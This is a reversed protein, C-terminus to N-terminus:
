YKEQFSKWSEKTNAILEKAEQVQALLFNREEVALLRYGKVHETKKLIMRSTADIQPVIKALGTAYEKIPLNVLSTTHQELHLIQEQLRTCHQALNQWIALPVEGRKTELSVYLAQLNTYLEDFIPFLQQNNFTRLVAMDESHAPAVTRTGFLRQFIGM